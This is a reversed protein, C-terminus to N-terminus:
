YSILSEDFTENGARTALAPLISASRYPIFHVSGDGFAFNTGGTHQSYIYNFSCPDANETPGTGYIYPPNCPGGNDNTFYGGNSWQNQVGSSDDLGDAWFSWGWFLDQSPGREGIMVTQSLGDTVGGMKVPQQTNIIGLGDGYTLGEIAVYCTCPYFNAYIIPAPRGDAPCFFVPVPTTSGFGASTAYIDQEELFPLIVWMWGQGGLRPNNEGPLVKYSDAFSHCALALQKLNNACQARAAADRVKQVAPLLLSILIGIIAIVVLLEILTFGRWRLFLRLRM